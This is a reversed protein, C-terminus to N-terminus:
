KTTTATKRLRINNGSNSDNGNRNTSVDDNLKVQLKRLVFIWDIPPFVTLENLLPWLLKTHQNTLVIAQYRAADSRAGPAHLRIVKNTQKTAPM